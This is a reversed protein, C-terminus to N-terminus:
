EEDEKIGLVKHIDTLDNFVASMAKEVLDVFRSNLEISKHLECELMWVKFTLVLCVILTVALPIVLHDM